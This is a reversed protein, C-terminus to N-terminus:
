WALFSTEYDWVRCWEYMPRPKREGKFTELGPICRALHEMLVKEDRTSIPTDIFRKEWIGLNSLSWDPYHHGFLALCFPSGSESSHLVATDSVVLNLNLLGPLRSALLDFVVPTLYAVGIHLYRLSADFPRHSFVQVLETLERETLFYDVLSLSTLTDASRQLCALTADFDHLAPIKLATLNALVAPDLVLATTLGAWTSRPDPDADSSAAFSRGLELNSITESNTHLIRALGRPDSLHAADFALRAVFKHLHPFPQLAYFLPSLDTKSSSSLLLSGLSRRFHNVFPAISDRLLDGSQDDTGTDGSDHDFYLELEELNDFDVTSLLNSFNVLQAHLTLKRLSVGFATRAAALFQLTDATPSLDRWEFSYETVETMLRVAATMSQLIDRAASSRGSASPAIRLPTSPLRLHRSVWRKSSVVYSPPELSEKRILYEIFWARVHLRRVRRAISPTRLRVLSKTMPGDLKAWHIERYKADLVINYFAKNVSILTLLQYDPIFSAVCQWIDDPLLLGTRAM